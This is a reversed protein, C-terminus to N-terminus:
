PGWYRGLIVPSDNCPCGCFPGGIQLFLWTSKRAGLFTVSMGGKKPDGEEFRARLRAASSRPRELSVPGSAVPRM